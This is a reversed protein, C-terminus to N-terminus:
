PETSLDITESSSKVAPYKAESLDALKQADLVYSSFTLEMDGFALTRNLTRMSEMFDAVTTKGDIHECLDTVSFNGSQWLRRTVDGIVIYGRRLVNLLEHLQRVPHGECDYGNFVRNGIAICTHVSDTADVKWALKDFVRRQNAHDLLWAKRKTLQDAAHTVHDYSTRMEYVNCPHFSNKCEFLFLHGDRYALIDVELKNNKTGTDVEEEVLFGAQHLADRLAIQMPDGDERNRM